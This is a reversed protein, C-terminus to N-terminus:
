KLWVLRIYGSKMNIAMGDPFQVKKNVGEFRRHLLLINAEANSCAIASFDNTM